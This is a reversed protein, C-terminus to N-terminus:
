NKINMIKEYMNNYRKFVISLPTEGNKIKQNVNAGHEILYKVLNENDKQCVVTLPTCYKNYKNIECELPFFKLFKKTNRITIEKNEDAGYEILYKIINENGNECAILLPTFTNELELLYKVM